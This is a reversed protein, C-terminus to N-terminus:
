FALRIIEGTGGARAPLKAYDCNAIIIIINTVAITINATLIIGMIAIGALVL